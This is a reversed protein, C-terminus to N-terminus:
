YREVAPTSDPCLLLQRCSGGFFITAKWEHEGCRAVMTNLLASIDAQASPYMASSPEDDVISVHIGVGEQDDNDNKEKQAASEEVSPATPDLGM